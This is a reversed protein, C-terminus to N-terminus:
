VTLLFQAMVYNSVDIGRETLRVQPQRIEILGQSSLRDLVPAYVHWMNQGFRRAFEGGSVGELMRLGLFMFEEMRAELSLREQNQYLGETGNKAFDLSLYAELQSENSFRSHGMMSSSGLGLGLYETGTWYGVNHRCRFGSRGYNSIEYHEYGHERLYRDTLWYMQRETEEDPLPLAGAFAPDREEGYRRYFPTGEEIILSYASIHEPKLMVIKKLTKEWAALSQGPLGSMLDVSVNAFGAMRVQQYTKLFSDYTHIRGLLKLEDDDASQLGISIRNIGGERYCELKEMTVTGPNIEITIEADERVSFEGRLADMVTRIWPGPLVSPTGGGIFISSVEYEECAASVTTIEQILQQVYDRQTQQSAPASLFDCYACKSVCFPIHVYLELEKKNMM